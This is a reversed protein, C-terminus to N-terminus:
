HSTDGSYNLTEDGVLISLDHATYIMPVEHYSTHFEQGGQCLEPEKWVKQGKISGHPGDFGDSGM